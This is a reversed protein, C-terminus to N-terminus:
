FDLIVTKIRVRAVDRAMQEPAGCLFRVDHRHCLVGMMALSIGVSEVIYQWVEGGSLGDHPAALTAIGIRFVRETSKPRILARELM